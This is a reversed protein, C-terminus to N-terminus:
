PSCSRLRSYEIDVADAFRRRFVSASFRAANARMLPADFPQSEFSEVAAILAEETQEHFLIGTTGEEVIETAGGRGYAIVPTACAQAEVMTIGFDEQAAFVFARAKQMLEVLRKKPQHGVIEINASALAQIKPMEPGDGVVILRRTPMRSFASVILDIRKYPVLRAATLYYDGKCYEPAFAEINVPPYVVQSERGYVKKIRRAIFNSNAVFANVGNATRSDWIRVYHLFPQALLASIRGIQSLYQAHLDWAYRIPSHCYCIHLQDPGTIVGKAFAYSSSIIIDYSSLDFQEVALPMLPFYNRYAKKGWPLRQIFSTHPHKGQLFGRQGEPVADITTYLDAGPFLLIIQELVREAGGYLPLWDHVIAVRPHDRLM